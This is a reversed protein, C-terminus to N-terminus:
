PGSRPLSPVNSGSSFFPATLSHGRPTALVSLLVRSDQPASHRSTLSTMAPLALICPPGWSVASAPPGSSPLPMLCPPTHGESCTAQMPLPARYDALVSPDSKGRSGSVATTIFTDPEGEEQAPLIGPRGDARHESRGAPVRLAETPPATHNGLGCHRGSLFLAGSSQLCGSTDHRHACVTARDPPASSWGAEEPLLKFTAWCQCRTNARPTLNHVTM